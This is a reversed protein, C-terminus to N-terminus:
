AKLYKTFGRLILMQGFGYTLEIVAELFDAEQLLFRHAVIIGMTIVITITGPILFQISINRRIKDHHVNAAFVMMSTMIIIGLIVIYKFVGIEVRSIIKYFIISVLVMPLFALFAEQCDKINFVCMKKFLLTYMLFGALLLICGIILSIDDQYKPYFSTFDNKLLCWDGLWTFLLGIYVIKKSRNHKSRRTNIYFYVALVILLLPKTYIRYITFYKFNILLCDLFLLIWFIALGYKKLLKM